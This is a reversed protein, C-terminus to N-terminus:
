LYQRRLTDHADFSFKARMDDQRESNTSGIGASECFCLFNHLASMAPSFPRKEDLLLIAWLLGEEANHLSSKVRLQTLLASAKNAVQRERTKRYSSQRYTFRLRYHPFHHAIDSGDQWPVLRTM